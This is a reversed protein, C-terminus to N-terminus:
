AEEGGGPPACCIGTPASSSSGRAYPGSRREWGSREPREGDHAIEPGHAHDYGLGKLLDVCVIELQAEDLFPM